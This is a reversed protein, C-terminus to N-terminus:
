AARNNTWGCEASISLSSWTRRGGGGGGTAKEPSAGEAETWAVAASAVAVGGGRASGRGLDGVEAEAEV